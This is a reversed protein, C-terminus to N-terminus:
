TVKEEEEEEDRSKKKKKPRKANDDIYQHDIILRKLADPFHADDNLELVSCWEVASLYGNFYHTNDSRGGIYVNYPLAHSPPKAIFTGKQEGDDIDYTGRNGDMQTWEIFLTTWIKNDHKIILYDKDDNVCGHIRIEEKSVSVGRYVRGPGENEWNSIIYQDPDDGLVKFTICLFSYSSTLLVKDMTFKSKQLGLYGRGDPLYKITKCPEGSIVAFRKTRKKVGLITSKLSRSKWKKVSGTDIELDDSGKTILFCGDESGTQFDTLMTYPLWNYLDIIGSTGADGRDGKSGAPGVPGIPGEVGAPGRAGEKGRVVEKGFINVM